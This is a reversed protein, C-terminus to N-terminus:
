LNFPFNIIDINNINIEPKNWLLPKRNNGRISIGISNILFCKIRVDNDRIIIKPKIIKDGSTIM